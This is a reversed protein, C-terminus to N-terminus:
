SLWGMLLVLLLAWTSTLALVLIVLRQWSARRENERAWQRYEETRRRYDDLSSM